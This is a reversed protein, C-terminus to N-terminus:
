LKMETNTNFVTGQAVAVDEEIGNAAAGSDRAQILEEVLLHV